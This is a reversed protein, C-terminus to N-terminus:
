LGSGTRRQYSKARLYADPDNKKMDNVKTLISLFDDKLYPADSCITKCIIMHKKVMDFQFTEDLTGGGLAFGQTASLDFEANDVEGEFETLKQQSSSRYDELITLLYNFGFDIAILMILGASAEIFFSQRVNSSNFGFFGCILAICSIVGYTIYFNKRAMWFIVPFLIFTAIGAAIEIYFSQKFPGLNSEYALNVVYICGLVLLFYAFYFCIRAHFVKLKHFFRHSGEYILFQAAVYAKFEANGFDPPGLYTGHNQSRPSNQVKDNETM